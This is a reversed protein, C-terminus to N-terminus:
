ARVQAFADSSPSPMQGAWAASLSCAIDVRQSRRSQLLVDGSGSPTRQEGVALASILRPEFWGAYPWYVVSSTCDVLASTLSFGILAVSVETGGIM